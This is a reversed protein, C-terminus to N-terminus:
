KVTSWLKGSCIRSVRGQDIGMDEAIARQLVGEAYRKRIELVQDDTLKRISERRAPGSAKSASLRVAAPKDMCNESVTGPALNYLANNSKNGDRHRVCAAKLADAGMFYAAVFRHVKVVTQKGGAIIAPVNFNLYGNINHEWQSYGGPRYVNGDADAHYGAAIAALIARDERETSLPM